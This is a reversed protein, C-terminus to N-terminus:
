KDLVIKPFFVILKKYLKERSLNAPSHYLLFERGQCGPGRPWFAREKQIGFGFPAPYVRKYKDLCKSIRPAVGQRWKM